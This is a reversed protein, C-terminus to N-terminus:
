SDPLALLAQALSDDIILNNLLKGMVAGHVAIAKEAGTAVGVIRPIKQLSPLDISIVRSNAMSEVATGTRDFYRTCCDGVAGSDHFRQMETAGLNMSDLIASSAGHGVRGVGVIAIQSKSAATLVSSISTERLFADRTEKSEVVAPAHLPRHDTGLKMALSRVLVNGDHASDVISLGGVLPLIELSAHSQNSPVADVVAQVSSGWSLSIAGENPLNEMLWKAGFEGVRALPNVNAETPAVRCDELGYRAILQEELETARVAPNNIRIDVIGQERAAALVRSVNSRSVGIDAAVEAQSKGELYYLTAARVLLSHNRPSPM